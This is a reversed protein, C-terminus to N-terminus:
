DDIGNGSPFNPKRSINVQSEDKIMQECDLLFTKEAEIKIDIGERKLNCGKVSIKEASAFQGKEWVQNSDACIKDGETILKEGKAISDLRKQWAEKLTM